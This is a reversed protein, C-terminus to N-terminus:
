EREGNRKRCGDRREKVKEGERGGHVDKRARKKCKEWVRILYKLGRHTGRHVTHITGGKVCSRVCRLVM